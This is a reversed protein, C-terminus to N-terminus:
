FYSYNFKISQMNAHIKCIKGEKQTPTNNFYINVDDSTKINVMGQM